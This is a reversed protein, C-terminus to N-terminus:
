KGVCFNAFINALVEEPTTEGLIDALANLAGRLHEAALEFPFTGARIRLRELSSLESHANLLASYHRASTIVAASGASFAKKEDRVLRRKLGSIGAGTKCSVIIGGDTEDEPRGAAPLDSKNFVKILDSGPAAGRAIAKGVRRDAPSSKKSLDQVWLIVDATKLAKLARRMGEREIPGGTRPDIGATDTFIVKLGSLTLTEELTDRTTGARPSVIARRTETIRNLLSSKGSNPAGAITVRIGHKLYRGRGFSDALNKIGAAAAAARRRFTGPDLEPLEEYSDDLRVELEGLLAILGARLKGIRNSIGGAVQTIAARHASENESIILDNVAEAQALDLKGNMFARLTFEGPRAERAGNSIALRLLRSIIFPSGHCSIEAMDDGTYSKPARYLTVVTNDLLRGNEEARLFYSFRTKPTKFISSPKLFASAIKFAEPGSLRVVAIAGGGQASAPAVITQTLDPILM